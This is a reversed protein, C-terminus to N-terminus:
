SLPIIELAMFLVSNPQLILRFLIYLVLFLLILEKLLFPLIIHLLLMLFQPSQPPLHRLQLVSAAFALTSLTVWALVYHATLHKQLSSLSLYSQSLILLHLPLRPPEKPDVRLMKTIKASFKILSDSPKFDTSSTIRRLNPPFYQIYCLFGLVNRLREERMNGDAFWSAKNLADIIKHAINSVRVQGRLQDSVGSQSILSDALHFAWQM